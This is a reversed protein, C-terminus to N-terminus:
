KKLAYISYTLIAGFILLHKPKVLSKAQAAIMRNVARLRRIKEQNYKRKFSASVRRERQLQDSLLLSLKEEKLLQARVNALIRHAQQLEGHFRTVSDALVSRWRRENAAILSDVQHLSAELTDLRKLDAQILRMVRRSVIVDRDPDFETATKSQAASPLVTGAFLM